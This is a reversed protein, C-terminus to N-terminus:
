LLKEYYYYYYQRPNTKYKMIFLTTYSLYTFRSIILKQLKATTISLRVDIIPIVRIQTAPSLNEISM